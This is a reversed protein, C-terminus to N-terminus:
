RGVSKKKGYGTDILDAKLEFFAEVYSKLM